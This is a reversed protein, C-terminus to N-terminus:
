DFLDCYLDDWDPNKEEILQIKWDRRWKKLQKERLIAGNVDETQEYYVLKGISYKKTFGELLKEKHEYMRKKLESTVGIYLTGNKKSALIYVFYM